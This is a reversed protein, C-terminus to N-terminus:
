VFESSSLANFRVSGQLFQLDLIAATGPVFLQGIVAQTGKM